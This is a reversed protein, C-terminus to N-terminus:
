WFPKFDNKIVTVAKKLPDVIVILANLASSPNDPFLELGSAANIRFVKGSFQVVDTKSDRNSQVNWLRLHYVEVLL